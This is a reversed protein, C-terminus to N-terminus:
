FLDYKGNFRHTNGNHNDFVVRYTIAPSLETRM